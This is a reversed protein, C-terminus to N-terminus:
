FFAERVFEIFLIVDLSLKKGFKNDSRQYIMMDNGKM